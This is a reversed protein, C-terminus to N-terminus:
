RGAVILSSTLKVEPNSRIKDIVFTALADPNKVTIEAIIDWEGFLLCANNVETMGKLNELIEREKKENLSILIYAKM